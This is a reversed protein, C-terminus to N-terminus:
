KGQKTGKFDKEKSAKEWAANDRVPDYGYSGFLEKLQADTLGVRKSAGRFAQYESEGFLSALKTEDMRSSGIMEFAHNSSLAQWYAQWAGFCVGLVFADNSKQDQVNKDYVASIAAELDRPCKSATEADIAAAHGRLVESRTTVPQVAPADLDGARAVAALLGVLALVTLIRM